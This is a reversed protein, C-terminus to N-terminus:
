LSIVSKGSITMWSDGVFLVRSPDGIQYKEVIYEHLFRSPKAMPVGKRNTKDELIKTFYGPGILSKNWGVPLHCDAAGKVFLVEPRELYTAAKQLNVYNLNIDVDAVVAGM